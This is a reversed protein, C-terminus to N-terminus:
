CIHELKDIIELLLKQNGEETYHNVDGRYKPWLAFCEMKHKEISWFAADVFHDVALYPVTILRNIEQRLLSYIHKQYQDDYHHKFWNKAAKLAPNFWDSKAAIDTYILDCDKHLGTTHIPHHRTHVRSVSTHCVIVANYLSMDQQRIQQLIKYEGVGAQAVNTVEFKEKLLTPWGVNSNPWDCAFSDGAILIKSKKAM